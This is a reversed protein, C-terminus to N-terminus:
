SDFLMFFFNRAIRAFHSATTTHLADGLWFPYTISM